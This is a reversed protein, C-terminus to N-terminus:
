SWRSGRCRCRGRCRASRRLRASSRRLSGRGGGATGPSSRGRRYSRLCSRPARLPAACRAPSGKTSVNSPREEQREAEHSAAVALGGRRAVRMAIIAAGRDVAAAGATPAGFPQKECAVSDAAAEASWGGGVHDARVVGREATKGSRPTRQEAGAAPAMATNTPGPGNTATPADPAIPDVNNASRAASNLPGASVSATPEEPCGPADRRAAARAPEVDPRVRAIAQLIQDADFLLGPEFSYRSM